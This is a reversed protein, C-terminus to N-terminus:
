LDNKIMNDLIDQNSDTYGNDKCIFAGWAHAKPIKRFIRIKKKWSILM